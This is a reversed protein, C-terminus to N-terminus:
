LLPGRVARVAGWPSLHIEPGGEGQTLMCGQRTVIPNKIKNLLIDFYIPISAKSPMTLPPSLCILNTQMEDVKKGRQPYESPQNSALRKTLM